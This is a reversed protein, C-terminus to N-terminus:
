KGETVGKRDDTRFPVAPLGERNYLTAAPNDAWAYRIADISEVGSGEPAEVRVTNSDFITADAFVFQGDGQAVAFGSLKDGHKMLGSGTNEFKIKATAGDAEFSEFTPGSHVIDEGYAIKRAALALRKGVDQKNKPHIDRAEGIDIITAMGTNPLEELTMTQAERLEAWASESPADKRQMFNALQVFLFPFDGQGWNERWDSIMAPFITRYNYARRANAEGQYWIVGKISFPILPHVMANYLYSPRSQNRLAKPSGGAALQEEYKAVLQDWYKVVSNFEPESAVTKPSTWAESPTGGWSTHILGIPRDLDQHLQRGFYYGVASFGRVSEPSCEEWTGTVDDLPEGSTTRKVHFLRLKPYKADSIEQKADKAQGVSWQMNSQGSCVWVDGFLVNEFKVHNGASDRVDLVWSTAPIDEKPLMEVSFRGESDATVKGSAVWQDGAGRENGEFPLPKSPPIVSVTVESGPEATGWVNINADRQLVMNDSFIAPLKLEASAPLAALCAMGFAFLRFRQM